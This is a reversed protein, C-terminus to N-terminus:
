GSDEGPTVVRALARLEDESFASLDVKAEDTTVEVEQRQAWEGSKRKRNNLWYMIAMTDPPVLKNVTRIKALRSGGDNNVEIIKESEEYEFGIARKFLSKEVEADAADKGRQLAELFSPHDKKWRNITRQSVKFAEALEKDTAGKIALSWAWADHYKPNYQLAAAM